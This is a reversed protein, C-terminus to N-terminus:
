RHYLHGGASMAAVVTILSGREASTLSSIQRKGRLCIVESVKSQV